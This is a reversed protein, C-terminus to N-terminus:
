ATTYVVLLFPHSILPTLIPCYPHINPSADTCVKAMYTRASNLTSFSLHACNNFLRRMWVYKWHRNATEIDERRHSLVLARRVLRTIGLKVLTTREKVQACRYLCMVDWSWRMMKADLRSRLSHSLAKLRRDVRSQYLWHKLYALLIPGSALFFLILACLQQFAQADM